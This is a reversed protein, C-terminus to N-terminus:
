FLHSVPRLDIMMRLKASPKCQAFNLSSRKSNPFLIVSNYCQMLSLIVLIEDRLHITIPPSQAYVHLDLTTTLKVELETKYGVNFSHKAFTYYNEVLLKQVESIPEQNLVSRSWDFKSLIKENADENKQPNLFDCKQM